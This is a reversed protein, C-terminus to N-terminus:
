LLGSRPDVAALIRSQFWSVAHEHSSSPATAEFVGAAMNAHVAACIPQDDRVLQACLDRLPKDDVGPLTFFDFALMTEHPGRPLVQTWCLTSGLVQLFVNPYLYYWRMVWGNNTRAVQATTREDLISVSSATMDFHSALVNHTRAAHYSDLYNEIVLKWNCRMIETRHGTFHLAAFDIDACQAMISGLADDLAVSSGALSVWLMQGAHAMSIESLRESGPPPASADGFGPADVLAGEFSFCWGHYRCQLTDTIGRGNPLIPGARHPCVNHYGWPHGAGDLVIFVPYGAIEEAVYGGSHSLDDTRGLIMWESGFVTTRETEYVDDDVYLRRPLSFSV